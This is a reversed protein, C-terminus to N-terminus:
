SIASRTEENQSERGTALQDLWQHVAAVGPLRCTAVSHGRGVKISLGGMKNIVAFGHEDTLDDGIFVPMRGAFPEQAMFIKIAGGKDHGKPKIEIVRKGPQVQFNQGALKVLNRAWRHLYGGLSPAQRYHLALSVGKDEVILQSYRQRMAALRHRIAPLEETSIAHRQIDNAVHTRWELGHLGAMPLHPMGLLADLDALARGSVLAVAGGCLLHLKDMLRLLDHHILVEDPTRAIEILTGDVDLFYAWDASPPPPAITM